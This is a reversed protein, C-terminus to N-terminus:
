GKNVIPLTALIAERKAEPMNSLAEALAQQFVGCAFAYSRHKDYTSEAYAALQINVQDQIAWQSAISKM